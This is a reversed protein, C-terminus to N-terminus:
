GSQQNRRERSTEQKKSQETSAEDSGNQKTHATASRITRAVTNWILPALVTLLLATQLAESDLNICKKCALFAPLYATVAVMVFPSLPSFPQFCLASAPLPLPLPPM